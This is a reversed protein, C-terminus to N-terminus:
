GSKISRRIVSASSRCASFCCSRVLIVHVGEGGRVRSACLRLSSRDEGYERYSQPEQEHRREPPARRRVSVRRRPLCADGRGRLKRADVVRDEVSAEVIHRREDLLGARRRRELRAAQELRDREPPTDLEVRVVGRAIPQEVRADLGRNGGGFRPRRTLRFAGFCPEVQAAGVAGAYLPAHQAAL